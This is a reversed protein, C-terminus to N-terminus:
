NSITSSGRALDLEISTYNIHNSHARNEREQLTGLSVVQRITVAGGGVRLSSKLGM